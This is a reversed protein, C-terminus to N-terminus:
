PTDRTYQVQVYGGLIYYGLKARDTANWYDVEVRLREGEAIAGIQWSGCLHATSATTEYKLIGWEYAGTDLSLRNEDADVKYLRIHTSCYPQANTIRLQATVTVFSAPGFLFTRIPKDPTPRPQSVPDNAAHETRDWPVTVWKQHNARSVPVWKGDHYDEPMARSYTAFYRTETM